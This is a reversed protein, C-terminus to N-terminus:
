LLLIIGESGNSSTLVLEPNKLFGMKLYVNLLFVFFLKQPQLVKEVLSRFYYPANRKINGDATWIKSIDYMKKDDEAASERLKSLHGNLMSHDFFDFCEGFAPLTNTGLFKKVEEASGIKTGVITTDDDDDFGSFVGSNARKRVYYTSKGVSSITNFFHDLDNESIVDASVLDVLTQFEIFATREKSKPWV